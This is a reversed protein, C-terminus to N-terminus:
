ATDPQRDLLVQRMREKGIIRAVNKFAFFPVLSVFLILAVIALGFPGGGGFAFLSERAASGKMWGVVLREAGHYVPSLATCLSAEFLISLIAPRRRLWRAFDLHEILLMVKALVLANLVAFGQLSLSEGRERLVVEHNLVFLGFLVWLYLFLVFFLRFEGLMRRTLSPRDTASARSPSASM